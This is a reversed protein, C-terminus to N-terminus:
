ERGAFDVEKTITATNTADGADIVHITVPLQLNLIRKLLKLIWAVITVM